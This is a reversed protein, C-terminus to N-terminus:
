HLDLTQTMPGQQLKDGFSGQCGLNFANQLHRRVGLNQRWTCPESNLNEGALDGWGAAEEAPFVTQQQQLDKGPHISPAVLRLIKL